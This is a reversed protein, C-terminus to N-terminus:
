KVVEQLVEITREAWREYSFDTIFRECGVKMKEIGTPSIVRFRKIADVLSVFDEAKFLLGLNYQRVLEGLTNANSSIVPLRYKAAEWLMSSTSKFVKTYSLVLADASAFFYPRNEDNPGIFYDFIAGRDSLGYVEVLKKPSSGLSFAQTGAQVLFAEPVQKVARVVTKIDKGSHPAGFLLLVMKDLPLGLRDRAEAKSVAITNKGVGLPVCLVHGAFVGGFFESYGKQAEDNQTVFMFRNRALSLKYLPYWVRGSVVFLAVAYFYIFPNESFKFMSPKPAFLNAGTLSVVWRYSRSPISLLHPVFLFPEGDRLYIVDYHLKRYLLIAKILTSVTEFLMLFWRSITGKRIFRFFRSNNFVFYHPMEVEPNNAVGCFTVLIVDVGADALTKTEVTAAYPHHGSYHAFPCV